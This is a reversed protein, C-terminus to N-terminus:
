PGPRAGRVRELVAHAVADPAEAPLVHGAGRVLTCEASPIRRALERGVRPPVMFDKEGMVISAPAEIRELNADLAPTERVLARQEVLFSRWYDANQLLEDMAAADLGQLGPVRGRAAALPLVRALTRFTAYTLAPGILPRALLRDAADVSSCPGVSGLLVLGTVRKPRAAALAIAVGGGWSHGVVTAESVDLADLLEAAIHANAAFGLAPGGTAGYGPRDPAILRAHERLRGCLPAWAGATGPQGHLLLVPPGAGEDRVHVPVPASPLALTHRTVAANCCLAIAPGRGAALNLWERHAYSLQYLEQNHDLRDHTRTGDSM